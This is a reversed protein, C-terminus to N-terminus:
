AQLATLNTGGAFVWTDLTPTSAGCDPRDRRKPVLCLQLGSTQPRLECCGTLVRCSRPRGSHCRARKLAVLLCPRVCARMLAQRSGNADTKQGCIALRAAKHKLLDRGCFSNRPVYLVEVAMTLNAAPETHWMPRLCRWCCCSSRASGSASMSGVESSQLLTTTDSAM